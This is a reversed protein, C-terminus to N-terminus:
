DDKLRIEFDGSLNLEKKSENLELYEAKVDYGKDDSLFVDHFNLLGLDSKYELSLATGHFNMSNKDFNFYVNKKASLFQDNMNFQVFNASISFFNNFILTKQENGSLSFQNKQIDLIMLNSEFKFDQFYGNVSESISVLDNKFLLEYGNVKMSDGEFVIGKSGEMSFSKDLFYESFLYNANISFGPGLIEGGEPLDIQIRDELNNFLIPEGHVTIPEFLILNLIILFNM